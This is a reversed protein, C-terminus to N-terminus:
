SRERLYFWWNQFPFFPLNMPILSPYVVSGELLFPLVQNLLGFSGLKPDIVGPPWFTMLLPLKGLKSGYAECLSSISSVAGKLLKKDMHPRQGWIPTMSAGSVLTANRKSPLTHALTNPPIIVHPAVSALPCSQYIKMTKKKLDKWQLDM